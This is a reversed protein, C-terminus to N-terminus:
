KKDSENRLTDYNTNKTKKGVKELLRRKEKALDKKNDKKQRKLSLKTKSLKKLYDKQRENNRKWPPRFFHWFVHKQCIGFTNINLATKPVKKSRKETTQKKLM